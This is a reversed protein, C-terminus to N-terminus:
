KKGGYPTYLQNLLVRQVRYVNGDPPGFKLNREDQAPIVSPTGDLNTAPTQDTIERQNLANLQVNNYPVRGPQGVAYNDVGYGPGNNSGVGYGAGGVGYGGGYSAGYPLNLGLPAVRPRYTDTKQCTYIGSLIPDPLCAM